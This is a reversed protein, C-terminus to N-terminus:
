KLKKQKSLAFEQQRHGKFKKLSRQHKNNSKSFSRLAPVNLKFALIVSGQNRMKNKHKLENHLFHM